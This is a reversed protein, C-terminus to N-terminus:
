VVCVRVSCKEICVKEREEPCTRWCVVAAVVVIKNFVDHGKRRERFATFEEM